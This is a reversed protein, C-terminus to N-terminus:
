QWKQSSLTLIPTLSSAGTCLPCVTEQVWQCLSIGLSLENVKTQGTPNVEAKESVLQEEAKWYSAHDKVAEGWGSLYVEECPFLIFSGKLSTNIQIKGVSM